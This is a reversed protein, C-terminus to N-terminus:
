VHKLGRKVKLLDDDRVLKRRRLEDELINLLKEIEKESLRKRLAFITSIISM